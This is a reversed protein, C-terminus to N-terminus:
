TLQTPCPDCGAPDGDGPPLNQYYNADLGDKTLGNPSGANFLEFGKRIAQVDRPDDATEGRAESAQAGAAGGLLWEETFGAPRGVYGFHINAAVEFTMCQGDITVSYLLGMCNTRCPSLGDIDADLRTKFDWEAGTRVLMTWDWLAGADVGFMDDDNRQRMSAVRPDRENQAM